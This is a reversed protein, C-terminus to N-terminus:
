PINNNRIDRLLVRLISIESLLRSFSIIPRQAVYIIDDPRLEMHSAVLISSVNQANLHYAVIPKTGRLLYIESRKAVINSLPGNQQFLMDAM